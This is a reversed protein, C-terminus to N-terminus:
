SRLVLCPRTVAAEVLLAAATALLAGVPGACCWGVLACLLFLM